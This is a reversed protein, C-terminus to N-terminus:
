LCTRSHNDDEAGLCGVLLDIVHNFPDFRKPELSVEAASGVTCNDADDAVFVFNRGRRELRNRADDLDNGYKGGEFQCTGFRM